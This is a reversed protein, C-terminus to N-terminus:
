RGQYLFENARTRQRNGKVRALIAQADALDALERLIRATMEMIVPSKVNKDDSLLWEELEEYHINIPIDNYVRMSM